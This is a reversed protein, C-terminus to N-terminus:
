ARTKKATRALWAGGAALILVDIFFMLPLSVPGGRSAYQMGGVGLGAATVVLAILVATRGGARVYAGLASYVVGMVILATKMEGADGLLGVGLHFLGTLVLLGSMAHRFVNPDLPPPKKRSM